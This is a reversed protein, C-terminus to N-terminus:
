PDPEVFQKKKMAIYDDIDKKSPVGKLPGRFMKRGSVAVDAPPKAVATPNTYVSPRRMVLNYVPEIKDVKQVSVEGDALFRNKNRFM